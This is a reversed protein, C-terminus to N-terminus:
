IIKVTRVEADGPLEIVDETQAFGLREYFGERGEVPALVLYYQPTLEGPRTEQGGILVCLAREALRVTQPDTGPCDAVFPLTVLPIDGGAGIVVHLDNRGNWEGGFKRGVIMDVTGWCSMASLTVQGSIPNGFPSDHEYECFTEDEHVRVNPDPVFCNRTVHWLGALYTHGTLTQFKNAIGALAFPRDLEHSLLLFSYEEVARLWFDLAPQTGGNGQCIDHFLVKKPYFSQLRAGISQFEGGDNDVLANANVSRVSLSQGHAIRGCECFCDTRCEWLIESAGFHLTRRSLLREQFVWARNLLPEMATRFYEMDGHLAEHSRDHSIRAFIPTGDGLETLTTELPDGDVGSLLSGSTKLTDRFGQGHIRPHFLGRTANRMATAAVNLTANYYIESMKASEVMWDEHDDQIICLSDIWAYRCGLARALLIFDQFLPPLRDWPIGQRHNYITNHTTRPIYQVARSSGWCHSLTMYPENPNIGDDVLTDVLRVGDRIDLLRKPLTFPGQACKPHSEDCSKMWTSALEVVRELTVARPVHSASGIAPYSVQTNVQSGNGNTRYLEIRSTSDRITIAHPYSQDSINPYFLAWFVLLGAGPQQALCLIREFMAEAENRKVKPSVKTERWLADAAHQVARCVRCGRAAERQVQDFSTLWYRAQGAPRGAAVPLPAFRFSSYKAYDLDLCAPCVRHEDGHVSNEAIQLAHENEM